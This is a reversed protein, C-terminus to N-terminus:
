YYKNVEQYTNFIASIVLSLRRRMSKNSLLFILCEGFLRILKSNCNLPIFSVLHAVSQCLILIWFIYLVGVCLVHGFSASDFLGIALKFLLLPLHGIFLSLINRDRESTLLSSCILVNFHWKVSMPKAVIKFNSMLLHQPHLVRPVRVYRISSHILVVM